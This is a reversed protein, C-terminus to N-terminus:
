EPRAPQTRRVARELRIRLKRPLVVSAGWGLLLMYSRRDILFGLPSHLFARGLLVPTWLLSSNEYAIYALYRYMNSSARRRVPEADSPALLRMKRLLRQWGLEMLRWDKTLQGSRRRYCNLVRPLCQINGPRSLAMRLWVDIDYCGPLAPDFEGARLLADRRVVMSSGTGIINDVFLDRFSLPASASRTTPGLDTGDEDIFRSLSFTLDADPHKEMYEVHLALKDQIWLDDGDLFAVYRGRASRVGRNLVAAPGCHAGTLIRLRPDTIERLLAVTHDTSGDDAVILELEGFTQALVSGVAAGVFREVNFVPMVVSVLPRPPAILAGAASM